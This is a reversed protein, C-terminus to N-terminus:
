YFAQKQKAEKMQTGVGTPVRSCLLTSEIPLATRTRRNMLRQVPSSDFGQTPTNRFALLSIYPDTQAEKSKTLLAKAIKVANEAKGNAQPYHSSTTSHKFEWKFVFRQFEDSVFQPGNDTVLEDPIGFRAFQTKLKPIVAPSTTTTLHDIELFNSFYDVTVLYNKSDLVFLDAAVKALPRAPAGQPYMPEKLQKTAMSLWVDCKRIYDKVDSKIGPWFITERARKLCSNEGLHSSHIRDLMDRRMAKPIVVREGKFILDHATSLEDQYYFYATVSQPTRRNDRAM